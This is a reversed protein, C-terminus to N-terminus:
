YYDEGKTLATVSGKIGFAAHKRRLEMDKIEGFQLRIDRAENELHDSGLCHGVALSDLKTNRTTMLISSFSTSQSIGNHWLALCGVIICAVSVGLSTAYALLLNRSNYTYFNRLTLDTVNTITRGGNLSLLSFTFNRSLDEIARALTKNRCLTTSQASLWDSTNWLDPCEYLGTQGLSMRTFAAFATKDELITGTSGTALTGLILGSTLLHIVHYAANEDDAGESLTSPNDAVVWDFYAFPQISIPTLTQTGNTFRLNIVYSINWLQCVLQAPQTFNDNWLPNMGGSRVYFTNEPSSPTVGTYIHGYEPVDGIANDWLSQNVGPVTVLAEDLSQCKYSPGHFSVTYSSNIFPARVPLVEASSATAAFLRSILPKSSYVIGAGEAEVKDVWFANTFNVNPVDLVTSVNAPLLRISLTAPTIVVTLPILWSILALLTLMKARVWVDPTFFAKPSGLIAFMADIGSLKLSKRRLTAWTVQVAAIGVSSVLFSKSLFAIGTGVRIAWTQQDVSEVLTDNLSNYYFHHGMSLATACIICGIMLTPCRWGIGWKAPSDAGTPSQQFPPDQSSLPEYDVHDSTTSSM